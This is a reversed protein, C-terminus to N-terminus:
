RRCLRRFACFVGYLAFFGFTVASVAPMSVAIGATAVGVSGGSLAQSFIAVTMSIILAPELSDSKSQDWRSETRTWAWRPAQIRPSSRGENSSDCSPATGRRHMVLSPHKRWSIRGLLIYCRYRLAATVRFSTTVCLQAPTASRRCSSASAPTWLSRSTM